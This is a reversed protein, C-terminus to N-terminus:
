EISNFHSQRCAYFYCEFVVPYFIHSLGMSFQFWLFVWARFAFSNENQAHQMHGIKAYMKRERALKDVTLNCICRKFQWLWNIEFKRCCFACPIISKLELIKHLAQLSDLICLLFFHLFWHLRVACVDMRMCQIGKCSRNWEHFKRKANNSNTKKERAIRILMLLKDPLFISQKNLTEMKRTRWLYVLMDSEIHGMCMACHACEFLNIFCIVNNKYIWQGNVDSWLADWNLVVSWHNMRLYTILLQCENFLSLAMDNSHLINTTMKKYTHTEDPVSDHHGMWLKVKM